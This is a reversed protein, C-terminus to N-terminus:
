NLKNVVLKNIKNPDAIAVRYENNNKEIFIDAPVALKLITIGNKKLEKFGACAFKELGRQPDAAIASFGIYDAAYVDRNVSIEFSVSKNKRLSRINTFVFSGDENKCGDRVANKRIGLNPIKQVSFEAAVSNSYIIKMRETINNGEFDQKATGEMMLKGGHGVYKELFKLTTEKSYEPYLFVIADFTHGNLVPKNDANLTLTGNTILDTPVLANLYGANWIKLAKEEIKLKDNIDYRGRESKHPYWNQLAENGFIVLLKIEPLSPNFRNMLRACKEVPNLAEAAEPMELGIGWQRDNFAHYFTRIGYRLSTLSKDSFRRIKGDYYMNYMAKAPYSMAIGMQTPTPTNEDTFGYERPITWWKLGTAWIEDNVLSNHFTNHAAIFANPGYVEKGKKYMADEVHMPGQRMLDMYTNIAKVRVEDQGAPAYRMKFMTLAADEGTLSELNRVMAQALSRLRFSGFKFQLQWPPIIKANGYEDLMVGDFPIDAYHDIFDLTGTIAEQSFNSINRYYFGGMVYASYGGFAKGARISVKLTQDRVSADYDTIERLTAPDYFGNATKKFAFVRFVEKKYSSRSRVFKSDLSCSGNGAHDLSIENEAIFREAAKEPLPNRTEVQTRYGVKINRSHARAVIKELVPHMKEVNSFSPGNRCDLFIFDFPSNEIINDLDDLYKENELIENTLFWYAVQPHNTNEFKTIFEVAKDPQSFVFAPLSVLLFLFPIYICNKM